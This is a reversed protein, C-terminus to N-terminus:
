HLTRRRSHVRLSAISPFHYFGVQRLIQLSNLALYVAVNVINFSVKSGAAAKVISVPAYIQAIAIRKRRKTQHMAGGNTQHMAPGITQQAGLRGNPAEGSREDTPGGASPKDNTRDTERDPLCSTDMSEDGRRKM